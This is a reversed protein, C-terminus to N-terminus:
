FAGALERALVTHADGHNYIVAENNLRIIHKRHFDAANDASLMGAVHMPAHIIVQAGGKISAILRELKDVPTVLESRGRAVDGVIGGNHFIGIHGRASHGSSLGHLMRRLAALVEQTVRGSNLADIVPKGGIARTAAPTLVGEGKLAKIVVEGPALGDVVGGTHFKKLGRVGGIALLNLTRTEAAQFAPYKKADYLAKLATNTAPASVRATQFAKLAATYQSGGYLEVFQDFFQKRAKEVKNKHFLGGIFGAAAGVGAGILAGMPGGFMFGVAAGTAAGSAVGWAKGKKYGVFGGVAAGALPGYAVPPISPLKPLGTPQGGGGGNGGQNLLNPLLSGALKTFPSGSQQGNNSTGFLREGLKAAAIEAIMKKLFRKIFDDLIETLIRAIGRQISRWVNLMGDRFSTAGVLMDAFSAAVDHRMQVGVDRLEFYLRVALSNTKKLEDRKAQEGLQWAEVMEQEKARQGDLMAQYEQDSVYHTARLDRVRDEFAQRSDAIQIDLRRRSLQSEMAAVQQWSAGWRKASDISFELRQLEIDHATKANDRLTEVTRKASEGAADNVKEMAEAIDKGVNEVFAPLHAMGAEFQAIEITLLRTFARGIEAPVDKGPIKLAIIERRADELKSAFEKLFDVDSMTFVRQGNRGQHTGALGGQLETALERLKKKFDDAQKGTDVLADRQAGFGKASGAAAAGANKSADASQDTAVAAAVMKDRMEALMANLTATGTDVSAQARDAAQLAAGRERVAATLSEINGQIRKIDDGFVKGFTSFNVAKALGLSMLEIGIAVGYALQQLDGFIKYLAIAEKVLFGIATVGTRAMSVLSIALDDIKRGLGAVVQAQDKGFARQLQEAISAFAANIVPSNAVTKGIQDHFNRWMVQAQAVRADLGDVQEGLRGTAAAVGDLIAARTAELKGAETLEQRTVGLKKAFDDEAKAENIKGTLMAVSRTRGTLMADNIAELATAVDTGNKQALAFAGTALTRYQKDTLRLGAALDDNVMTMLKFDAITNHTGQRLAGLLAAGTLGAQETLHAFNDSVDAVASGHMVLDEIEAGIARITGRVANMAAQATVFGAATSLIDKGLGRITNGLGGTERSTEKARQSVDRLADKMRSVDVFVTGTDTRFELVAKGVKQAM